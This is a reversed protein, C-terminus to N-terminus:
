YDIIIDPPTFFRELANADGDWMYLAERDRVATIAAPTFPNICDLPGRPEGYLRVPKGCELEKPLSAALLTAYQLNM